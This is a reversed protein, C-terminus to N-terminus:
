LRLFDPTPLGPRWGATRLLATLEAALAGNWAERGTFRRILTRDTLIANQRARDRFLATPTEHEDRGDIEVLLWRGDPLLWALDVRALLRGDRGLVRLQLQDPPIGADTCGLRAWTEAPSEARPDSEEWWPHTRRVGACFRARDHAARLDAASLGRQNRASDMMAVGHRRELHPVAQALADPVTVLAIDGLTLWRNLRIRRLTVADQTRRSSGNPFTM